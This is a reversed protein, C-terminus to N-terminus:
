DYYGLLTPQTDSKDVTTLASTPNLYLNHFSTDDQGPEFM